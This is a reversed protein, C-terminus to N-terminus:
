PLAPVGDADTRFEYMAELAARQRRRTPLSRQRARAAEPIERFKTPLRRFTTTWSPASSPRHPARRRVSDIAGTRSQISRTRHLMPLTAYPKPASSGGGPLVRQIQFSLSGWRDKEVHLTAAPSGPRRPREISRLISNAMAPVEWFIQRGRSVKKLRFYKATAPHQITRHPRQRIDSASSTDM